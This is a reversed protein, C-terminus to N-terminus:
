GAHELRQAKGNAPLGLHQRVRRVSERDRSLVEGIQVDNLGKAHHWAVPEYLDALYAPHGAPKGRPDDITDDDWALPPVWGALRASNRARAVSGRQRHTDDPPRRMSLEDYLERVKRQTRVTVQGRHMLGTFNAPTVGLRRAFEARAWGLAILAQLRRRTGTADVPVGGALDLRVATLRRATDPRVRRSPTRTGDDRRAGYLLRHMVGTPVGSAASIRRWGMGAAMLAQVHQRVPEADVYPQWRGYVAQRNRNREYATNANTCPWCHCGDLAYGAHTGHQHKARVHRCPKPTRDVAAARAQRAEQEQRLRSARECSHRRHAYAARGPSTPKSRWGCDCSARIV